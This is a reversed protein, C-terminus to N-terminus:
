PWTGSRRRRHSRPQPELTHLLAQPILSKSPKRRTLRYEPREVASKCLKLTTLEGESSSWLSEMSLM